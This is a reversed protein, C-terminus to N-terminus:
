EEGAKSRLNSFNLATPKLSKTLLIIEIKLMEIEFDRALLAHKISKMQRRYTYLAVLCSALAVVMAIIM